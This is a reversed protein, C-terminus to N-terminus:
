IARGKWPILAPVRRRYGRYADGYLRVLKREEFATGIALYLSGLVATALGLPNIAAGWLILYGGAYLPHRVFRHPGDLRLSEDEPAERERLQTTGALRGLDYYRASGLLVAWGALNVALMAARVGSPLSFAPFRGLMAVGVAALAGFSGLAFLNYAIRYRRGFAPILRAKVPASALGSHGLGFLVWALAYVLLGTTM